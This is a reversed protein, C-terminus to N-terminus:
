QVFVIAKDCSPLAADVPAGGDPPPCPATGLDMLCQDYTPGVDTALGCGASSYDDIQCQQLQDATPTIGLCQALRMCDAGALDACKSQATSLPITNLPDDCSPPLTLGNTASFLGACSVTQVDNVCDPFTMASARDCGFEVNEARECDAEVFTTPDQLVNPCAKLRMCITSVLQQCLAVPTGSPAVHGGGGTSGSTGTSGSGGTSGSTGTSGAAGDHPTSSGGGGCAAFAFVVATLAAAGFSRTPHFGTM